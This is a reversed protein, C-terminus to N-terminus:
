QVFYVEVVGIGTANGKSRVQATYNGPPITAILAAELDNTPQLGLNQLEQPQGTKWDDNELVINGQQDRLQLTTDPLANSIGASTLSPGIARVVAKVLGNQVIFGAIMLQDGPQVLGRTAINALRAPSAASLDYADVVGTGVTNGAGRVVATYNGPVLDAIIASELDNTPAVQSANIEAVQDGTILGGIQTTKWDNNTAVTAGSGDHIELTPNALADNVGAQSLSPGIARVIIKKSSGPPGQVIFGEILVNDGTGVELRTSINVAMPSPGILRILSSSLTENPFHYPGSLLFSGDSQRALASALRSNKDRVAPAVFSTDVAGDPSLSAIGPAPTGDFAEFTGTILLKGDAQPEINEIGPFFTSTETTATWQAGGGPTFTNDVTGDSKLRVIGRAATGKFSTLHGAIVIRGDFQIQADLLPLSATWVGNPPQYTSGKLPDFIVPFNESLDPTPFTTEAFGGDLSGDVNLRVLHFLLDGGSLYEFLIKGDPQIALVRSGVYMQFITNSGGTDRQVQSDHISQPFAFTDYHGNAQLRMLTSYVTSPIDTGACLLVKGDPTATATQFLPPPDTAYTTDAVGTASVKGYTFSNATTELGFVFFSGDSM